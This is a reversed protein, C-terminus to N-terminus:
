YEERYGQSVPVSKATRKGMEAISANFVSWIGVITYKKAKLALTGHRVDDATMGLKQMDNLTRSWKDLTHPTIGSASTFAVSLPNAKFADDDHVVEEETDTDSETDTDLETSQTVFRSQKTVEGHYQRSKDRARQQQKRENATAADQRKAFNVILWGNPIPQIIGTMILQDLDGQLEDSSMRLSWALQMTNPLIGDNGSRGALLFLEICRRWLRDPLVGMKPDDLIEHYLKIWYNAM